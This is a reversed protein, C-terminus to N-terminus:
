EDNQVVAWFVAFFIIAGIASAAIAIKAGTSLNKGGISKVDSYKVATSSGTKDVVVFDSESSERIYGQYTTGDGLKVRIKANEGTGLKKVKSRIKETKKEPGTLKVQGYALGALSINILSFVLLTSFLRIM